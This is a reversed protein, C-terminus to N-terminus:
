SEINTESLQGKHLISLLRQGSTYCSGYAGPVQILQQVRPQIGSDLPCFGKDYVM